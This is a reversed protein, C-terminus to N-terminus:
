NDTDGGVIGQFVFHTAGHHVELGCEALYGSKMGDMGPLQLDKEYKVDDVYRYRINQMDLLYGNNAVSYFNSGGTTGGQMQNFLPHTKFVVEGFPTIFRSVTMGYEKEGTKIMYFSNKRIAQQFALLILNSGFMMKESSGYRFAIELNQELWDMTILGGAPASIFNNPAAAKIQSLIGATYRTPAGNVTTLQKNGNFWFAREMDISFYELCERKAETVADGTRLRTKQATRTLGLTSRFIQCYNNLEIPDFNIGTPALSGEEFASGVVNIYPNVGAATISAIATGTSGGVGRTVPITQAATPDGSVRCFEGTQEIWIVDGQKVMTSVAPNTGPGNTFTPDITLTADAAGVAANLKFRRADLTKQFWHYVPDDTTESKLLSTLATLPAKAIDSSNPYLLLMTQRWNQPRQTQLFNEDTRLGIISM